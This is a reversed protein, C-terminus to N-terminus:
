MPGNWLVTKCDALATGYQEVTRPGIDLAMWGDPIADAPVVKSNADAQFADAIVVDVPLLVQVGNEAAQGLFSRATELFDHEVLSSGVSKGQAALFTNAMGGGILFKDARGLLHRLVQIKDSVKAGGIIVAMPREPNGAVRGLFSVEKEMLFGAVAPLYAA